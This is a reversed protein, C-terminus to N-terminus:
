ALRTLRVLDARIDAVTADSSWVLRAKGHLFATTYTGHDVEYSGGRSGDPKEYSIYLAKAASAITEVPAVLGEFRPDFRDLYARVVPPTDRAPDTTVFVLRVRARVAPSTGRLAAAMNALVVNCIDPCHSYGFFVLSIPATAVEPLTTTHGATDTFSQGPLPYGRSVPTGHWGKQGNTVLTSSGTESEAAGTTCAALFSLLLAVGVGVVYSSPRPHRAVACTM